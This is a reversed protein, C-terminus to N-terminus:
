HLTVGNKIRTECELILLTSLMRFRANNGVYQNNRFIESFSVSAGSSLLRRTM